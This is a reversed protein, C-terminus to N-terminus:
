GEPTWVLRFGIRGIRYAPDLEGRYASRAMYEPDFWSGGRAVRTFGDPPGTPDTDVNPWSYFEAGYWDNVWEMVNGHMDHLGWDNPAKEAVPHTRYDSNERYWGMERLRGTGGYDNTSEARAAYEWEAETPLRYSGRGSSENLRFLFRQVDEWSVNEVPCDDGCDLYHSPNEGM